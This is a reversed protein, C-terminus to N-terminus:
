NGIYLVPRDPSSKPKATFLGPGCRLYLCLVPMPRRLSKQKVRVLGHSTAQQTEEVSGPRASLNTVELIPELRM